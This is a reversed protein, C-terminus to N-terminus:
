KEGCREFCSVLEKFCAMAAEDRNSDPVPNAAFMVRYAGPNSRMNDIYIMALGTSWVEFDGAARERMEVYRRLMNKFTRAALASVILDRSAFHRYVAPHSVGVLDAIERLTFEPGHRKAVLGEAVDLVANALDGHRYSGPDKKLRPRKVNTEMPLMDMTVLSLM